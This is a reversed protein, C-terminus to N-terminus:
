IKLLDTGYFTQINYYHLIYPRSANMSMLFTRSVHSNIPFKWKNIQFTSQHRCDINMHSLKTIEQKLKSSIQLDESLFVNM